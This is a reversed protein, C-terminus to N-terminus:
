FGGFAGAVGALRTCGKPGPNSLTVVRAKVSGNSAKEGSAMICKGQVIDAQTATSMELIQTTPLLDVGVQGSAGLVELTTGQIATVEGFAGKGFGSGGASSSGPQYQGHGSFGAHKFKAAYHQFNKSVKAPIRPLCSNSSSGSSGTANTASRTVPPRLLITKAQIVGISNAPGVASVCVGQSIASSTVTKVQSFRTSSSLTVLATGKSTSVQIGQASVSAVSGSVVKFKAAEKSAKKSVPATAKATTTTSTKAASSSSGCAALVMGCVGIVLFSGAVKRLSGRQSSLLHPGSVLASLKKRM